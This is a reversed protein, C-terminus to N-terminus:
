RRFSVVGKDLSGQLENRSVKLSFSYAKNRAQKLQSNGLQVLSDRQSMKGLEVSQQLTRRNNQM